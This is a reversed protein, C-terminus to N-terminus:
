QQKNPRHMRNQTRHRALLLLNCREESTSLSSSDCLAQRVQIIDALFEGSSHALDIIVHVPEFRRLHFPLATSEVIIEFRCALRLEGGWPPAIRHRDIQICQDVMKLVLAGCDPGPLAANSYHFLPFICCELM